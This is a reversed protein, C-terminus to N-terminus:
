MMMTCMGRRKLTGHGGEEREERRCEAFMGKTRCGDNQVSEGESGEGKM